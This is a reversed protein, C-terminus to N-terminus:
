GRRADLLSVARLLIEESLKELDLTAAVALGVDYLSELEVVRYNVQFQQEKLEQRLRLIKLSALLLLPLPGQELGGGGADAGALHGAVAAAAPLVPAAPLRPSFLLSGGPFSLVGMEAAHAAGAAAAAAGAAAELWPPLGATEATAATGALGAAPSVLELELRGEREIYVAAYVAGHAARWHDLLRELLARDASEDQCLALLEQWAEPPLSVVGAGATAVELEASSPM